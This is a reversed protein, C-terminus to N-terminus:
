QPFAIVISTGEAESTKLSITGGQTEAMLKASYTGLGTGSSKGSTAYKEFFTERIDEPVVAQNQIIITKSESQSLDITIQEEDDSAEIANKIINALMSYCLLGEGQVTFSSDDNLSQGNINTKIVLENSDIMIENEVLIDNIIPVVDVPAPKLTYTGQEMKYMDLSLNIMRLMKRGLKITKHLYLREDRTLHENELVLMPFNMIGNLPSKLDHQTIREIDEKLQSNELLIENQKALEDRQRKLELQNRVRAKLLDPNFPKTIYDVAGLNLGKAEEMDKSMATLFIIPIDRTKEEAKVRQCVEYGDMEPMMIDLLILDPKKKEIIKLAMMGNVAAQVFYDEALAGKVVDINAPADDVALITPKPNDQSM